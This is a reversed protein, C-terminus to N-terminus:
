LTLPLYLGGLVGGRSRRSSEKGYIQSINSTAGFDTIMHRQEGHDSAGRLM